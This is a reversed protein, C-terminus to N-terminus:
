SQVHENEATNRFKWIIFLASDCSFRQLILALGRDKERLQEGPSSLRFCQFEIIYAFNKTDATKFFLESFHLLSNISKYLERYMIQITNASSAIWFTRSKKQTEYM